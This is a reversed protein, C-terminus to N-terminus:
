MLLLEPCYTKVWEACQGITTFEPSESWGRGYSNCLVVQYGNDTNWIEAHKIGNMHYFAERMAANTKYSEIM